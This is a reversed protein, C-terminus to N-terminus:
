LTCKFYKSLQESVAQLLRKKEKAPQQLSNFENDLRAAEKMKDVLNKVMDDVAFNGLEEGDSKKARKKKSSSIRALAEEFDRNFEVTAAPSLENLIHIDLLCIECDLEPEKPGDEDHGKKKRRKKPGGESAEANSRKKFSPLARAKPQAKKQAPAAFTNGKNVVAPLCALGDDDDSDSIKDDLDDDSGFIDNYAANYTETAAPPADGAPADEADVNPEAPPPSVPVSAPQPEEEDDMDIDLMKEKTTKKGENADRESTDLRNLWTEKSEFTLFPGFGAQLKGDHHSGRWCSRLPRM